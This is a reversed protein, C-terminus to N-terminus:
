LLITEKFHYIMRSLEFTDVFKVFLGVEPAQNVLHHLYSSRDSFARARIDEEPIDGILRWAQSLSTKTAKLIYAYLQTTEINLDDNFEMGGTDDTM